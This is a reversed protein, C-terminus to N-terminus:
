PLRMTQPIGIPLLHRPLRRESGENMGAVCRFDDRFFEIQADFMSRDMLFGHCFLLVMGEGGTDDYAISQGNINAIPM